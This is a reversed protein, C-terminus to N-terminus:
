IIEPTMYIPKILGKSDQSILKEYISFINDNIKLEISDLLFLYEDNSIHLISFQKEQKANLFKAKVRKMKNTNIADLVFLELKSIEENKLKIDNKKFIHGQILQWKMSKEYGDFQSEIEELTIPKESSIQIWRKLFDSPLELNTESVLRDYVSRTLLRDSDTSFM